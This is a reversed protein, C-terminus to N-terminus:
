RIVDTLPYTGPTNDVTFNVRGILQGFGTKINVRWKGPTLHSNFTFGRYGGDRGGLIPFPITSVTTWGGSAADFRQWEHVVTTSLGEPAFVASFVYATGGAATHFATDYSFLSSYWSEQEAALHFDAGSLEASHYVGASKLALPLPPFFGSFYLANFVVFIVVIARATRARERRVLEPMFIRMTRAFIAVVLFAAIGSGVFMYPGIQHFVVPLFFIFFSYLAFFYLSIQFPLRVYLRAFRENGLLLGAVLAVFLWDAAFGASRSYLSLYGSFLGGFAFQVVIPIIPAATLFFPRRLRGTEIFNILIIGAAAIALYSFFLANTQWLDVRRTLFLNDAIFGAILSLPSIYREYWHVLEQVNKPLRPRAM